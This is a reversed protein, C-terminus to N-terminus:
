RPLMEFQQIAIRPGVLRHGSDPLMMLAIEDFSRLKTSAPIAFVLTESATPTNVSAVATIPQQGLYVAPAGASSSSKLWLALAVTGPETDRNEIEVRIERCRAIRVPSRLYQHAQMLLPFSNSSAIHLDLPSGTAKHTRPGPREDPPQLYWYEGNFRIVVPQTAGPALIEPPQVPAVIETKPPHPWLIVSEYGSGVHSTNKDNTKPQSAPGGSSKGAGATAASMEALRNRHAVGDLLAWFTVLVAPLLICALRLAARRYERNPRFIPNPLFTTRFRFLCAALALLTAATMNSRTAIAWGAAYLCLALLYGDPEAPARYLAEAFLTRDSAQHLSGLQQQPVVLFVIRRIEGALSLAAITAVAAALASVQESFLVMAPVWVWGAACVLAFLPFPLPPDARFSSAPNHWYLYTGVIGTAAGLAVYAIARLAVSQVTPHHAAPLQCLVVGAILANLLGAGVMFLLMRNVARPDRPTPLLVHDSEISADSSGWELVAVPAGAMLPAVGWMSALFTIFYPLRLADAWLRLDAIERLPSAGRLHSDLGPWLFLNALVFTAMYAPLFAGAARVFARLLKRAASRNAFQRHLCAFLLMGTWVFALNLGLWTTVEVPWPVNHNQVRDVIAAWAPALMSWLTAFVILSTRNGLYRVWGVLVAALAQRWYWGNTRGGQFEELLDGALAQDRQGPICHDLLWSALPPPDMRTM